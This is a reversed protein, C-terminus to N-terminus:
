INILLMNKPTVKVERRKVSDKQEKNIVRLVRLFFALYMKSNVFYILINIFMEFSIRVPM